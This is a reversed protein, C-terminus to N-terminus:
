ALYFGFPLSARDSINQIYPNLIRLSLGSKSILTYPSFVPIGSYILHTPVHDVATVRSTFSVAEVRTVPLRSAACGVAARDGTDAKYVYGGVPDGNAGEAAETDVPYRKVDVAIGFGSPATGNINGTKGIHGRRVLM